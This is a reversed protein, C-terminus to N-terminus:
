APLTQLAPYDTYGHATSGYVTPWVVEALPADTAFREPLLPAMVVRSSLDLGRHSDTRAGAPQEPKGCFAAAFTFPMM